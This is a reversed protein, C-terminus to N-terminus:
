RRQVRRVFGLMPDPSPANRFEMRSRTAPDQAGTGRSAPLSPGSLSAGNQGTLAATVSAAAAAAGADPTTPASPAATAQTAGSANRRARSSLDRFVSIAMHLGQKTFAVEPPLRLRGHIAAIATMAQPDGLEPYVPSGDDAYTEEAMHGVIGRMTENYRRAQVQQEMPARTQKLESRIAPVLKSFAERLLWLGAVHPGQQEAVRQYFGLDIGQIFDDINEPLTPDQSQGAQAPPAGPGAGPQGQGGGQLQKELAEAKAKWQRASDNSQLYKGRYEKGEAAQKELAKYSGQLSRFNQEAAAQDKWDKGAFKFALVAAPDPSGPV